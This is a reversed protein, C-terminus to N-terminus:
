GQVLVWRYCNCNADLVQEYHFGPPAPPYGQPLYIVTPPAAPPNPRTAGYVVAGGIIMPVVWGWSHGGSHHHHHHYRHQAQATGILCLALIFLLKKM